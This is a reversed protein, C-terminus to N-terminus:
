SGCTECLAIFWHRQTKNENGLVVLTDRYHPTNITHQMYHGIDAEAAMEACSAVVLRASMFVAPRSQMDIANIHKSGRSCECPLCYTILRIAKATFSRDRLM